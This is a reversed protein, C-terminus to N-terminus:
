HVSRLLFFKLESASGLRFHSEAFLRTFNSLWCRLPCNGIIINIYLLQCHVTSFACFDVKGNDGVIWQLNNGCLFVIYMYKTKQKVKMACCKKGISDFTCLGNNRNLSRPFCPMEHARRIQVSLLHFTFSIDDFLSRGRTLSPVSNSTCQAYLRYSTFM